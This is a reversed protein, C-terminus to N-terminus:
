GGPLARQCLTCRIHRRLHLPQPADRDGGGGGRRGPGLATRAPTVFAEGSVKVDVKVETESSHAVELALSQLWASLTKGTHRDNFRINAGVVTHAPIVNTAPNGTDITTLAITSPEFHNTGQDLDRTVLRHAIHAAAYLPNRARHPYASHGQLGNVDFRVNLSGRRGIKIMEGMHDPCTPEGVLCVSMAEGQATMWDLIARTGHEAPGEEDGTLALVIAGDPPSEEVIELAAAVFAAVGSKMDTAGRGWIKGDLIAGSFPDGSWDSVDGPPVVDLHGNFGFTQPHGKPGWRAFLNDVGGRLIRECEFGAEALPEELLDLAEAVTPTVSPCQVLAATLDVPDTPDVTM